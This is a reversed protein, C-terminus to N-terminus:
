EKEKYYDCRSASSCHHNYIGSQTNMCVREKGKGDSHICHAPHRRKDKTKIYALHAPVGQMDRVRAM